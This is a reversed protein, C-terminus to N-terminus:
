ILKPIGLTIALGAVLDFFLIIPILRYDIGSNIMQPIIQAGALGIAIVVAIGIRKRINRKIRIIMELEFHGATAKDELVIRAYDTQERLVPDKAQLGFRKVDYPSELRHSIPSQPLLNPGTDLSLDVGSPQKDPHFHYVILEMYMNPPIGKPWERHQWTPDMDKQEEKTLFGVVTIFTSEREFDKFAALQAVLKEWQGLDKIKELNKPEHSLEICYLGEARNKIWKPLANGTFSMIESNFTNLDSSYAIKDLSLILSVTEGPASAYKVIAMRVPVLRILGKDQPDSQDAYSILVEQGVITQDQIMRNVNESVLRNAYRFQLESAIPLAIARLIDQRYLERTGSSLCILM